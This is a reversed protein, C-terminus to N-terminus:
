FIGSGQREYETPVNMLGGHKMPILSQAYFQHCDSLMHVAGEGAGASNLLVAKLPRGVWAEMKTIECEQGGGEERRKNWKCLCNHLKEVQNSSYGVSGSM